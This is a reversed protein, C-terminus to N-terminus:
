SRRVWKGFLTKKYHLLEEQAKKNDGAKKLYAVGKPIDEATDLGRGYICGLMYYTDSNDWNVQELFTKAKAYNQPTGLGEFCCKGLIYVGWKSGRGYSYSLLEFAKAYDQPIGTGNFYAKGLYNCGNISGRDADKQFCQVAFAEDKATGIGEMYCRGVDAWASPHGGEAALRFWHLAEEKRGAKELEEAYIAQHLPHGYEAGTKWLEKAKEPRPAIFDEDGQTYYRNLNSAALYMGGRFAKWFLDECKSINETMYAKFAAQNPFSDKGRNQIRIFDWWFYSNAVVYQCFADGTESLEEAADFAAQLDAFPMKQELAPTLEGCRLAVLVGLPSGQEVSKHILRTAEDDNEPFGHGVWVYQHGCYCRALICSADGDGAASAKELLAFAEKGKGTRENYYIDQLAQRVEISLSNAM